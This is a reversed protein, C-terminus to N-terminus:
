PLCSKVQKNEVEVFPEVSSSSASAFGEIGADFAGCAGPLIEQDRNADPIAMGGEERPSVAGTEDREDRAAGGGTLDEEEPSPAAGAALCPEPQEAPISDDVEKVDGSRGVGPM